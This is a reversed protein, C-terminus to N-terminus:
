EPSLHTTKLWQTIVKGLIEAAGKGEEFTNLQSGIELLLAGDMLHQNYRAESAYTIRPVFFGPYMEEAIAMLEHAIAENVEWNPNVQGIVIMVRAVERGDINVTAKPMGKPLGDRHIDLLLKMSPYNKMLTRATNISRSYSTNFEDLEHHDRAQVAGIGGSILAEKLVQGIEIIEGEGNKNREGDGEGAYSEANHTHYIGVLVEDALPLPPEEEEVPPLPIPIEELEPIEGEFEPDAPNYNWGMWMPGETPPFYSLFYTRPDAVNVGTLLFGGMTLGQSRVEHLYEREPMSYGPMGELLIVQFPFSQQALIRVLQRSTGKELALVFGGLFLLAILILAFIRILRSFFGSRWKFRWKDPCIEEKLM